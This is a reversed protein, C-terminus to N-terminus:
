KSSKGKISKKAKEVQKKTWKRFDDTTLNSKKGTVLEAVKKSGKFLGKLVHDRNHKASGTHKTPSGTKKLGPEYKAKPPHDIVDHEGPEFKTHGKHAAIDKTPHKAGGPHKAPSRKKTASDPENYDAGAEPGTDERTILDENKYGKHEEPTQPNDKDHASDLDGFQNQHDPNDDVIHKLATKYAVTGQTISPKRMKFVM